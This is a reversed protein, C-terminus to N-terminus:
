KKSPLYLGQYKRGMKRKGASFWSEHGNQGVCVYLNRLRDEFELRDGVVKLLTLPTGQPMSKM